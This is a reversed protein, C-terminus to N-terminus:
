VFFNQLGEIKTVNHKGCEPCDCEVTQVIKPSTTFFQEIRSFQEKTLSEIFELLEAKSQNKAEWYNQSDYIGKINGIVMDFISQNNESAFVKIVEDINPYSMEVGIEDTVM